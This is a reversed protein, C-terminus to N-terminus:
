NDKLPCIKSERPDKYYILKKFDIVETLSCAHSRFDLQSRLHNIHSNHNMECM